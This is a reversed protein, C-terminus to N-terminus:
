ARFVNVQQQLGSSLRAIEESAQASQGASDAVEALSVSFRNISNTIEDAVQSQEETATSVQFNMDAIRSVAQAISELITGSEEAFKVGDAAEGSAQNMRGVADQASQQLRDIMTGISETAQQTNQALKRVEDAVVAFGRGAEGARASEIAANLALLNTQEAINRIVTLVETIDASQEHLQRIVGAAENVSDSLTHIAQLNASIKDQGQKAQRDAAAAQASTETANGAVEKVAGSMETIATAVMALQEEQDSVTSSVQRSIASMEEAATSSQHVADRLEQILSRFNSMMQSFSRSVRTIEDDGDQPIVVTLDSNAAINQMTNELRQLPQNVSRYISLGAVALIIVLIVAFVLLANFLKDFAQHTAAVFQASEQLQLNILEDLSKTLPDFVRYLQPIFENAAQQQLEGQASLQLYLDIQQEVPQLARDAANVLQQEEPTLRTNQYNQWQQLGQQRADSVIRSLQAAALDGGRYKHLADVISIGFADSMSKIQRLPVVRDEYLSNIDQNLASMRNLMLSIVTILVLLPLVILATLRFRISFQRLM